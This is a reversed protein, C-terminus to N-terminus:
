KTAVNNKQAIQEIMQRHQSIVQAGQSVVDKLAPNSTNIAEQKFDKEDQKHDKVMDKIYAKDFADGDLASLKAVNAKDKSSLSDPPKINMQEAVQKMQDGLKTHDDVMKQGFQKVDPNSSKQAALQGLQVETMGGELAKRVFAKDMMAGAGNPDQNSASAQDMPSAGPQPTPTTQQNPSSQQGGGGPPMQAIASVGGLFATGAVLALSNRILRNNIQCSTKM